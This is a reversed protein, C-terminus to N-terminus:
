GLQLYRWIRLSGHHAIMLIWDTSSDFIEIDDSSPYYLYSFFDSLDKVRVESLTEFNDWNIFVKENPTIGLEHFLKTLAFGKSTADYGKILDAVSELTRFLVLNNCSSPLGLKKIFTARLDFLCQDSVAALNPFPLSPNEKLFNKKKIELSYM